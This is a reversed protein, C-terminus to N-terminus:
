VVTLLGNMGAGRHPECYFDYSGPEDFKMVFTDGEEGLQEDMSIKEQDVGKPIADEDFVVNHPGGKNNIWKVSDGKCVTTKEPVFKLGGSDTGMLVEKTEAAYAPQSVAAVSLGAALGAAKAMASRRTCFNDSVVVTNMNNNFEGWNLSMALPAKLNNKLSGMMPTIGTPSNRVRCTHGTPCQVGPLLPFPERRGEVLVELDYHEVEGLVEDQTTMKKEDETADRRTMQLAMNEASVVSVLGLLAISQFKM